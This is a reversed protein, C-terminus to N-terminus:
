AEITRVATGVIKWNPDTIKPADLYAGSEFTTGKLYWIAQEGSKSNQWVFDSQGDSNFDATARLQWDSNSGLSPSKGLFGGSKFSFDSNIYWVATQDTTKNRWLLDSNGDKDFDATGVIQWNSNAGLTPGGLYASADLKSDTLKWTATLDQATNRWILDRHQSSQATLSLRYDVM